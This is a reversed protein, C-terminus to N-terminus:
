PSQVEPKNQVFGDVEAGETNAYYNGYHEVEPNFEELLCKELFEDNELEESEGDEGPEEFIPMKFKLKFDEVEQYGPNATEVDFLVRTM